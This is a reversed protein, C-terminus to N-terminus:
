SYLSICKCATYSNILPSKSHQMVDYIVVYATSLNIKEHKTFKSDNRYFM